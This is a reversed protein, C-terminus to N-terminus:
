QYLTYVEQLSNIYSMRLYGIGDECPWVDNYAWSIINLIYKLNEVNQNMNKNLWLIYQKYIVLIFVKSLSVWTQDLSKFLLDKSPLTFCGM